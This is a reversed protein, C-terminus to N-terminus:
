KSLAKSVGFTKYYSAHETILALCVAILGNEVEFDHREHPTDYGKKWVVGDVREDMLRTKKSVGTVVMVFEM